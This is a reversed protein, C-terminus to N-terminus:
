GDLVRTSISTPGAGSDFHPSVCNEKIYRRSGETLIYITNNAICANTVRCHQGYPGSRFSKGCEITSEVFSDVWWPHCKSLVTGNIPSTPNTPPYLHATEATFCSSSDSHDIEGYKQSLRELMGIDDRFPLKPKVLEVHIDEKKADQPRTKQITPMTSIPGKSPKKEVSPKEIFPKEVIPDELPEEPFNNENIEESDEIEVDRVPIATPRESRGRSTLNITSFLLAAIFLFLVTKFLSRIRM